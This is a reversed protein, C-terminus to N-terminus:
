PLVLVASGAQAPPGVAPPLNFVPVIVEVSAQISHGDGDAIAVSATWAGAPTVDAILDHAVTTGNGPLVGQGPGILHWTYTVQGAGGDDVADVSLAIRGDGLAIATPQRALAPSCKPHAAFFSWVERSAAIDRCVTGLSPPNFNSGPWTHGGGVIRMLVVDCGATPGAPGAAAYTRRVVTCGDTADLVTTAYPDVIAPTAQCGNATVWLDVAREASTVQGLSALPVGNSMVTGGAYPMYDDATGSMQLVAVPVSPAFSSELPLPLNAAIPAIAALRNGLQLGLRQSMLGGNSIGTAYVRLRDVPTAAAIADILAAAFAVDDVGQQEAYTTGRGDAFNQRGSAPDSVGDPYVVICGATEALASFGSLTEQQQATSGGGHWCLVLARPVAEQAAAAPVRLLATRTRGGSEIQLSVTTGPTFALVDMAPLISCLLAHLVLHRM